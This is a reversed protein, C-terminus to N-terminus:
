LNSITAFTEESNELILLITIYLAFIIRIKTLSQYSILLSSSFGNIPNPGGWFFDHFQKKLKKYNTIKDNVKVKIM